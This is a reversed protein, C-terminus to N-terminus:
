EFGKELTQGGWHQSARRLPQQVTNHSAVKFHNVHAAHLHLVESFLVFESKKIGQSDILGGKYRLYLSLPVSAIIVTVLCKLYQSITGVYLFQSWLTQIFFIQICETANCVTSGQKRNREGLKSREDVSTELCQPSARGASDRSRHFPSPTPLCCVWLSVTKRKTPAGHQHLM